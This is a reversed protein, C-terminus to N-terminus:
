WAAGLFCAPVAFGRQVGEDALLGFDIFHEGTELSQAVIVEVAVRVLDAPAVDARESVVGLEQRADGVAGEALAFV